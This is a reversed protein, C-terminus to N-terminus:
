FEQEKLWLSIEKFLKGEQNVASSLAASEFRVGELMSPIMLIQAQEMADSSVSVKRVIGRNVQFGITLCGWEFRNSLELDFPPNKGKIWEESRYLERYQELQKESPFPLEEVSLQYYEECAQVLLNRMMDISLSPQLESLNMVRSRVSDVGNAKLKLPDPNLYLPMKTLDSNILLTGHHYSSGHHHYYASGSFKAHNVLLDNRGSLSAEIGAKQLAKIIIAYYHAINYDEDKAIFTFNLNGMDHYVAGGGSPRRVVRVHDEAINAANCERYYNQNRGIVVTNDNQWLYLILSDSPVNELLVSEAALNVTPDSGAASVTYLHNIM